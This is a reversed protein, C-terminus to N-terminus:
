FGIPTPPSVKKGGFSGKINQKGDTIEFDGAVGKDYVGGKLTGTINEIESKTTSEINVSNISSDDKIDGDVSFEWKKSNESKLNFVGDFQQTAFKIKMNFVGKAIESNIVGITHGMYISKKGEKEFSKLKETDLLDDDTAYWSDILEGDKEWVGLSVFDDVYKINKQKTDVIDIPTPPFEVNTEEKETDTTVIDGEKKVSDEIDGVSNTTDINEVVESTIEDKETDKSIVEKVEDKVDKETDKSVVEKIEDKVDKEVDKISVENVKEEKTKLTKDIIKVVIDDVQKTETDINQKDLEAIKGVEKSLTIDEQPTLNDQKTEKNLNSNDGTSKDGMVTTTTDKLIENKKVEGSSKKTELKVAEPEVFGKKITVKTPKKVDFVLYEGTKVIYIQKTKLNQFFTKGFLMGLKTIDNKVEVVFITGRIGILANKTKIRFRRPAVKGIKGTLTKIIGKSLSFKAKSDKSSDFLYDDINFKSNKGITIITRDKFIIQVKTNDKTLIIDNKEIKLGLKM